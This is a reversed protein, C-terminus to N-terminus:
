SVVCALAAIGVPGVAVPLHPLEDATHVGPVFEVDGHKHRRRPEGARCSVASRVPTSIAFM